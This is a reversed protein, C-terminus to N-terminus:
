SHITRIASEVDAQKTGRPLLTSGNFCGGKSRVSYVVMVGDDTEETNHITVTM